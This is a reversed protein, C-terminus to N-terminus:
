SLADAAYHWRSATVGSLGGWDRTVADPDPRRAEAAPGVTGGRDGRHRPPRLVDADTTASFVHTVWPVAQDAFPGCRRWGCSTASWRSM